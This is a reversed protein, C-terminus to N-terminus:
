QNPIDGYVKQNLRLHTTSVNACFGSVEGFLRAKSFLRWYNPEGIEHKVLLWVRSLDKYEDDLVPEPIAAEITGREGEKPTFFFVRKRSASELRRIEWNDAIPGLTPPVGSTVFQLIYSFLLQAARRGDPRRLNAKGRTLGIHDLSGFVIYYANQLEDDSYEESNSVRAAKMWEVGFVLCTALAKTLLRKRGLFYFDSSLQCLMRGFFPLQSRIHSLYPHGISRITNFFWEAYKTATSESFGTNTDTISADTASHLFTLGISIYECIGSEDVSINETSFPRISYPIPIRNDGSIQNRHPFQVNDLLSPLRLWTPKNNALVQPGTACLVFPDGVALAIKGVEIHWQWDKLGEGRYYIGIDTTNLLVSLKDRMGDKRKIDLDKIDNNGGCHLSQLMRGALYLSQQKQVHQFHSYDEGQELAWARTLTQYIESIALDNDLPPILDHILSEGMIQWLFNGTFRLIENNQDGRLLFIHRKSMRFEHWCWARTFWEASLLKRVFRKYAPHRYHKEKVEEIKKKFDGLKQLERRADAFVEEPIPPFDLQQLTQTVGRMAMTM